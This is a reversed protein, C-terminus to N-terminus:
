DTAGPLSQRMELLPQFLDGHKEVRELVQAADFALLDPDGARLAAEVEEWTVPTSVTPRPRARLSYVNVTTKMQDNQSWDIFVKGPRLAKAMRAVVLDPHRKELEVALARSVAKTQDYGTPTNLPVYVQLGKSGSTKAFCEIGDRRFTERVWLGVQCCEVITAPPGPDLDFVLFQPQEMAGGLSLSTHMEITALQALWVLSALDSVVCFDMFRKNAVCHRM